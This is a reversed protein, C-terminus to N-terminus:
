RGADRTFVLDGPDHSYLNPATEPAVPRYGCRLMLAQSRKNAPVTTGWLPLGALQGHMWLLGQTAVGRGWHAPGILFAVEALGDHVTAELRGLLEGSAADRLAFNLWRDNSRAPPPGALARTMRLRFLESSPVGGIHEYVAENRLLAELADLDRLTLADFLLSAALM